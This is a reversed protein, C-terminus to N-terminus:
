YIGSESLVLRKKLDRPTCGYHQKFAKSFAAVESFGVFFSVEAITKGSLIEKRAFELKKQKLYQCPSIGWVLKFLRCFYFRSIGASECLEDLDPTKLFEKDIFYKARLLSRFVENKAVVSRLTIKKLNQFIIRQDSIIVQGLRHFLQPNLWQSEAKGSKVHRCVSVMLNELESNRACYRNVLFQDSLLFKKFDACHIGHVATIEAITEPSINISIIESPKKQRVKVVPSTYGNGIFYDGEFAEFKKRNAIYEVNGAAIYQIGMGKSSCNTEDEGVQFLKITINGLEVCIKTKM